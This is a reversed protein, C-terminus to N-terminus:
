TQHFSTPSPPHCKPTPPHTPPHTLPHAPPFSTAPPLQSPLLNATVCTSIATSTNVKQVATAPASPGPARWRGGRCSWSRGLCCPAAGTQPV